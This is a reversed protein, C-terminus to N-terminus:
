NIVIIILNKERSTHVILVLPRICAHLGTTYPQGRPTRIKYAYSHGAAPQSRSALGKAKNTQALFSARVCRSFFFRAHM